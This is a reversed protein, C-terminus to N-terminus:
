GEDASALAARRTEIAKLVGSRPKERDVEAAQVKDLQEPTLEALQEAVADVNGAIVQEPDFGNSKEGPDAAQEDGMLARGQAAENDATLEDPALPAAADGTPAPQTESHGNVLHDGDSVDRAPDTPDPTSEGAAATVPGENGAPTESGADPQKVEGSVIDAILPQAVSHGNGSPTLDADSTQSKVDDSVASLADGDSFGEGEGPATPDGSPPRSEGEAEVVVFEHDSNQLADLVEDSVPTPVGRPISTTVGNISVSVAAQAGSVLTAAILITAM